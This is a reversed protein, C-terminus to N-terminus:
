CCVSSRASSRHPIPTVRLARGTAAALICYAIYFGAKFLVLGTTPPIRVPSGPYTPSSEAKGLHKESEYSMDSSSSVVEFEDSSSSRANAVCEVVLIAHRWLASLANMTPSRPHTRPPSGDYRRSPGYRRAHVHPFTYCFHAHTRYPSLM